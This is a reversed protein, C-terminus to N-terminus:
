TDGFFARGLEELQSEIRADVIGLDTEVICGGQKVRPDEIIEFDTINDVTRILVDKYDRIRDVDKANIKVKISNSGKIAKLSERVITQIISEDMEIERKVIKAAAALALKGISEETSAIIKEQSSAIAQGLEKLYRLLASAEELAKNEGTVRGEEFGETYAKEYIERSKEKAEALIAEAQLMDKELKNQKELLSQELEELSAYGKDDASNLKQDAEIINLYSPDALDFLTTDLIIDKVLFPNERVQDAKIVRSM